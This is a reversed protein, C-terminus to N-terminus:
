LTACLSVIIRVGKKAEIKAQPSTKLVSEKAKQMIRDIEAQSM